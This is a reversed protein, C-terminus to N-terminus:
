EIASELDVTRLASTLQLERSESTPALQDIRSYHSNGMMSRPAEVWRSRLAFASIGAVLSVAVVASTLRSKANERASEKQRLAEQRQFKEQGSVFSAFSAGAESDSGDEEVASSDADSSSETASSAESDSGEEAASGDADSRSETASSAESDSGEEAASGDADSRSETASSAESTSDTEEASSSGTEESSAASASEEASSGAEASSGTSETSDAASSEQDSGSTESSSEDSAETQSPGSRDMFDNEWSGGLSAQAQANVADNIAELSADDSPADTPKAGLLPEEPTGELKNPISELDVGTTATTTPEETTPEPTTIEETTPEPTTIEETTVPEPATIEETTAPPVEAMTTSALEPASAETTVPEPATIEETTAPPVEAMTTSALEPASAEAAPTDRFLVKDLQEIQPIATPLLAGLENLTGPLKLENAYSIRSLNIQPLATPLIAGLENLTAPLSKVENAYSIRRTTTSVPVTQFFVKHQTSNDLLRVAKQQLLSRRALLEEHRECSTERAASSWPRGGLSDIVASCEKQDMRSRCMLAIEADDKRAAAQLLAM